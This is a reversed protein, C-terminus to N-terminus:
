RVKVPPFAKNHTRRVNELMIGLQARNREELVVRITRAIQKRNNETLTFDYREIEEDTLKLDEVIHLDELEKVPIDTQELLCIVDEPMRKADPKRMGDIWNQQQQKLTVIEYLHRILTTGIGIALLSAPLLGMSLVSATAFVSAAVVSTAITLAYFSLSMRLKKIAQHRLDNKDPRTQETRANYIGQIERGSGYTSLTSYATSLSLIAQAPLMPLSLCFLTGTTAAHFLTNRISSTKHKALNALYLNHLETKTKSPLIQQIYQASQIRHKDKVQEKNNVIEEIKQELQEVGKTGLKRKFQDHNKEQLQEILIKKGLAILKEPEISKQVVAALKKSSLYLPQPPRWFCVRKLLGKMRSEPLNLEHRIKPIFHAIATQEAIKAIKQNLETEDFTKRHTKELDKKLTKELTKETVHFHQYLYTSKKDEPLRDFTAESFSAAQFQFASDITQLCSGLISLGGGITASAEATSVQKLIDGGGKLREFLWKFRNALHDLANCAHSFYGYAQDAKEKIENLAGMKSAQLDEKIPIAPISSSKQSTSTPASQVTDEKSDTPQDIPQPLPTPQPESSSEVQEKEKTEEEEQIVQLAQACIGKIFTLSPPRPYSEEIPTIREAHIRLEKLHAPEAAEKIRKSFAALRNSSLPKEKEPLPVRSQVNLKVIM